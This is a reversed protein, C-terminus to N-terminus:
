APEACLGWVGSSIASRKQGKAELVNRIREVMEEPKDSKVVFGHARCRAAIRALSQIEMNSCVFIRVDHRGIGDRLLRVLLPGDLKPMNIDVLVIECRSDRVCQLTGFPGRQFRASIGARELQQVTTLGFGLDDDVVVVRRM